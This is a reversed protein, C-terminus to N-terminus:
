GIGGSRRTSFSVPKAFLSGSGSRMEASEGAHDARAPHQARWVKHRLRSRAALGHGLQELGPRVEVEGCRQRLRDALRAPHGVVGVDLSCGDHGPLPKSTTIVRPVPKPVANKM